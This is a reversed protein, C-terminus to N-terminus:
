SSTQWRLWLACRGPRGSRLRLRTRARPRPTLGASPLSRRKERAEQLTYTPYRGITLRKVPPRKDAFTGGNKVRYLFIWTKIPKEATGSLRLGFGPDAVDFYEVRKNPLGKLRQVAADTLKCTPM